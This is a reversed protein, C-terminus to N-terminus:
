KKQDAAARKAKTEELRATVADLHPYLPSQNSVENIIRQAADLNGAQIYSDAEQLKQDLAPSKAPAPLNNTSQIPWVDPQTVDRVVVKAPYEIGDNSDVPMPSPQIRDLNREIRYAAMGFISREVYYAEAACRRAEFVLKHTKINMAYYTLECTASLTDIWAIYNDLRSRNTGFVDVLVYLVYEANPDPTIIGHHRLKMQLCADFYKLDQDTTFVTPYALTNANYNANFNWGKQTVVTGNVTDGENYGGSVNTFGPLQVNGGGNAAISEITVNIKHGQLEQLDMDAIAKRAASSIARQEEDFRKGGGHSPMMRYTNCGELLFISVLAFVVISLKTRRGITKFFLNSRSM